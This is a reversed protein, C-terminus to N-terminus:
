MVELYLLMTMRNSFTLGNLASSVQQSLSLDHQLGWYLIDLQVPIYRQRVFCKKFLSNKMKRWYNSELHITRKTWWQLFMALGIKNLVELFLSSLVKVPPLRLHLSGRRSQYQPLVGKRMENGKEENERKLATLNLPFLFDILTKLSVFRHKRGIRRCRISFQKGYLILYQFRYTIWEIM